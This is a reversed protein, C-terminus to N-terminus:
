GVPRVLVAGSCFVRVAFLKYPKIENPYILGLSFYADLCTNQKVIYRCM